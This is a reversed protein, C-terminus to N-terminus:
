RTVLANVLSGIRGFMRVNSRVDEPLVIAFTHLVSVAIDVLNNAEQKSIKIKQNQPSELLRDLFRPSISEWLATTQIPDVRLSSHNDLVSKLVALGVFRTTNDKSKLLDQLNQLDAAPYPENNVNPKGPSTDAM